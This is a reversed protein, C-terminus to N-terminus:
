LTDGARGTIDAGKRSCALHALVKMQEETIDFGESVSEMLCTLEQMVQDRGESTIEVTATNEDKETVVIM